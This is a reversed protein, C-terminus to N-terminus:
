ISPHLSSPHLFAPLLFNSSCPWPCLQNSAIVQTPWSGVYTTAGPLSHTFHSDFKLKFCRQRDTQRDTPKSNGNRHITNSNALSFYDISQHTITNWRCFPFWSDTEGVPQRNQKVAYIVAGEHETVRRSLSTPSTAAGTLSRLRKKLPCSWCQTCLNSFFSFQCSLIQM